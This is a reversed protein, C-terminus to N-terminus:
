LVRLPVRHVESTVVWSGGLIEHESAESPRRFRGGASPSSQTELESLGLRGCFVGLGRLGQVM